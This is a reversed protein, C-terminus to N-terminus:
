SLTFPFNETRSNNKLLTLKQSWWGTEILRMNPRISHTWRVVGYWLSFHELLLSRFWFNPELRFDSVKKLTLQKKLIFTHLVTGILLVFCSWMHDKFYFFLYLRDEAFTCAVFCFITHSRRAASSYPVATSTGGTRYQDADALMNYFKLNLM